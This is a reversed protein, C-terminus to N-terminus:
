RNKEAKRARLTLRFKPTGDEQTQVWTKSKIVHEIEKRMAAHAESKTEQPYRREPTYKWQSKAKETERFRLTIDVSKHTPTLVSVGNIKKPLVTAISERSQHEYTAIRPTETTQLTPSTLMYDLRRNNHTYAVADHGIQSIM